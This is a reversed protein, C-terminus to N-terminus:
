AHMRVLAAVIREPADWMALHGAQNLELHRAGPLRSRARRAQPDCPLLFDQRGWMVTTPVPLDGTGQRLELMEDLTAAWGPSRVYSRASAAMEEATMRDGRLMMPAAGFQRVLASRSSVAIGPVGAAAFAKYARLVARARPVEADEWFGVPSLALVSRAFGMRGLELAVAGGLSSGGVHMRGGDFQEAVARALGRVSQDSQSPSEGFGPLDVAHVECGQSACRKAVPRWTRHNDGIGHLLLLPTGSGHRVVHM